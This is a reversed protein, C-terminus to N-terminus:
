PDRPRDRWSVLPVPSHRFLKEAVGGVLLHGFNSRGKAGVVLLDAREDDILHLIQEVPHGVRLVTKVEADPYASAALLEAIRQRRDAKIDRLQDQADVDYGQAEIDSIHQIEKVNIVNAAILRAQYHRSLDLAMDLVGASRDSLCLAALIRKIEKM